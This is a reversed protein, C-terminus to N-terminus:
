SAAGRCSGALATAQDLAAQPGGSSFATKVAELVGRLCASALQANAKFEAVAAQARELANSADAKAKRADDAGAAAKELDQQISALNENTAGLTTALEDIAQQTAADPTATAAPQAPQATATPTAAQSDGGSGAAAAATAKGLKAQADDADSQATLAWIGLGVVALALVACLVIWVTPRGHSSPAADGETPAADSPKRSEPSQDDTQTSV